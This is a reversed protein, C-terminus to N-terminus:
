FPDPKIVPTHGNTVTLSRLTHMQRRTRRIYKSVTNKELSEPERETERSERFSIEAEGIKDFVM